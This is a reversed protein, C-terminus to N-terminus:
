PWIVYIALAVVCTLFFAYVAIAWVIEKRRLPLADLGDALDRLLVANAEAASSGGYTAYFDAPNPGVGFLVRSAFCTVVCAVASAGLGVIPWWWRHGLNTQSAICALILAADFGLLGLAL